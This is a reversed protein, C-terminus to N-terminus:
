TYATSKETPRGPGRPPHRHNDGSLRTVTSRNEMGTEVDAASDERIQIPRPSAPEQLQIRAAQLVNVPVIKELVPQQGRPVHVIGATPPSRQVEARQSKAWGPGPLDAQLPPPLHRPVDAPGPLPREHLLHLEEGGAVAGVHELVPRLAQVLGGGIAGASAFDSAESRGGSNRRGGTLLPSRCRVGNSGIPRIEEPHGRTTRRRGRRTRRRGRRLPSAADDQRPPPLVESERVRPECQTRLQRRRIRPHAGRSGNM